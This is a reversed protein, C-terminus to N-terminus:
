SSRRVKNIQMERLMNQIAALRESGNAQPGSGRLLAFGGTCAILWVLLHPLMETGGSATAALLALLMLATTRLGKVTFAVLVGFGLRRGRAAWATSAGAAGSVSRTNKATAPQM